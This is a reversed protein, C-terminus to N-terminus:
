EARRLGLRALLAADHAEARPPAARREPSKTTCMMEETLAGHDTVGHIAIPNLDARVYLAAATRTDPSSAIWALQASPDPPHARRHRQRERAWVRAAALDIVSALTM